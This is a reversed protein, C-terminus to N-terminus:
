IRRVKLPVVKKHKRLYNAARELLECDDMFSGLGNNCNICLLERVEWTRHDHDLHAKMSLPSNRTVWIERGCIGCAGGQKFHMEEVIKRSYGVGHTTRYCDKCWSDLRDGTKPHYRFHISLAEIVGNETPAGVYVTSCKTCQKVWAQHESSYYYRSM